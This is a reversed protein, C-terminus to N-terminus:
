AGLRAMEAAFVTPTWAEGTPTPVGAANLAAVLSDLDHKGAAYAREIADGLLNEWTTPEHDRSQHPNLYRPVMM